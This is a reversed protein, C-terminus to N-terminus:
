QPQSVADGRGTGRGAARGGALHERGTYRGPFEQLLYFSRTLVHDAPIPELPPIDLGRAIAQLRRGEPTSAGFDAIDADRTDFLILGGSGLYSNLRAYAQRSPLPEDGTVPWYLFPYVSLEDRRSISVSRRGHARGLQAALAHQSLGLLGAQAMEDVQADGTLVHALTLRSAASLVAPDVDQARADQPAAWLGLTLALAGAAMRGGGALRGTLRGTLWLSALADLALLAVAAALLWGKLPRDARTEMGEIRM